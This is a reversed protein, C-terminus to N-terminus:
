YRKKLHIAVSLLRAHSIETVANQRRNSRVKNCAKAVKLIWRAVERIQRADKAERLKEVADEESLLRSPTKDSKYLTAAFQLTEEDLRENLGIETYIKRWIDHLESILNRTDTELAFASGMLSSKLRDLWSVAKGRSNLVEFVTYVTKEEPIEHLLFSLQNNICAYLEILKDKWKGVM